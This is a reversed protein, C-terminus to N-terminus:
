GPHVVVRPPGQSRRVQDIADPVDDLGITRGISPLPDLRGDAVADLTGYWDQPLPGGGFQMTMGKHTAATCDITGADYWGGAAYVRAMFECSDVVQQLLGNAGVCEFIVQPTQIHNAHFTERYVDYPNRDAPNVLVDAGFTAAYALRDASFDAVVIPGVGRAKLAAVASLGIAGAGIVLPLDGPGVGSCRVYFEGVAFADVLAVADNPVGDPVPRSMIESVIMLEGFAGPADPHHGIVLPEVGARILIPMSTVRSGVPFEESCGPGHGVVEGIFEHGMVTDRDADWVFREASNPHDMYHVDSACIAASLPTILLEGPGPVPDATERVELENHRLVVARM